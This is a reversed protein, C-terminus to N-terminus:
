LDSGILRPALKQWCWISDYIEIIGVDGAQVRIWIYYIQAGYIELSGWLGETKDVEKRGMKPPPLANSEANETSEDVLFVFM